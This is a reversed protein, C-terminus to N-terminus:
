FITQGKKGALILSFEIGGKNGSFKNLSSTNIDYSIRFINNIYKIGFQFIFADQVRYNAGLLIDYDTDSVNYAAMVGTNIEHANRQNMFLINPTIKLEETIIIDTGGQVVWRLPLKKQTDTFSEDPMTLHFISLGGFPHLRSHKEIYKYYIGMNADFKLITTKSFSEGNSITGDFGNVSTSSYQTDFTFKDPNFSKNLLGIQLGVSL